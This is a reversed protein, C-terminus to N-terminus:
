KQGVIQRAAEQWRRVLVMPDVYGSIRCEAAIEDILARMRDHQAKSKWYADSVEVYDKHWDDAM